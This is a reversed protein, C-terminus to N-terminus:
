PVQTVLARVANGIASTIAAGEATQTAPPPAMPNALMSTHSQAFFLSSMAPDAASASPSMMAHMMTPNMMFRSMGFTTAMTAISVATRLTLVSGSRGAASSAAVPQGTEVSVLRYDVRADVMGKSDGGTARGLLGGIRGIAPRKVEAVDTTLVYQCQKQRADALLETDSNGFVPVTVFKSGAFQQAVQGDLAATDVAAGSKNRLAAVGIKPAGPPPPAAAQAAASGAETYGAPPEFLGADLKATSLATVKMELVVPAGGNESSKMTYEVPYGLKKGADGQLRYEDRCAASGGRMDAGPAEVDAYWGDVEVRRKASDCAGASPEQLTVVKLHRAAAGFVQKKEGTDTVTTTVTVVGGSKAGSTTGDLPFAQWTRKKPDVQIARSRDFQQILVLDPGAEIRERQGQIYVTSESAQGSSTYKASLKMDGHAMASCALFVISISIAKM